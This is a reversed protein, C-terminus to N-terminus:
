QPSRWSNVLALIVSTELVTYTKITVIIPRWIPVKAKHREIIDRSEAISVPQAALNCLQSLRKLANPWSAFRGSASELMPQARSRPEQLRVPPRHLVRYGVVDPSFRIEFHDAIQLPLNPRKLASDDSWAAKLDPEIGELETYRFSFECCPEVKAPLNDSRRQSKKRSCAVQSSTQSRILKILAGPDVSELRDPLWFRVPPCQRRVLPKRNCFRVWLNRPTPNPIRHSM